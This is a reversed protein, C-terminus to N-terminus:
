GLINVGLNKLIKLIDTFTIGQSSTNINTNTQSKTYLSIFDM